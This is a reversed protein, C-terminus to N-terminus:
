GKEPESGVAQRAREERSYEKPYLLVCEGAGLLSAAAGGGLLFRREKEVDQKFAWMLARRIVKRSYGASNKLLFTAQLGSVHVDEVFPKLSPPAGAQYLLRITPDHAFVKDYNPESPPLSGITSIHTLIEGRGLGSYLQTDIGGDIEAKVGQATFGSPLYRRVSLKTLNGKAVRPCLAMPPFGETVGRPIILAVGPRKHGDVFGAWGTESAYPFRFGGREQVRVPHSHRMVIGPKLPSTDLTIFVSFPEFDIERGRWKKSLKEQLQEDSTPQFSVEVSKTSFYAASRNSAWVLKFKEEFGVEERAEQPMNPVEDSLLESFFSNAEETPLHPLQFTTEGQKTLKELLEDAICATSLLFPLFIFLYKM